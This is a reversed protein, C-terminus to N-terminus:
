PSARSIILIYIISVQIPALGRCLEDMIGLWLGSSLSPNPSMYSLLTAENRHQEAAKKMIVIIAVITACVTVM